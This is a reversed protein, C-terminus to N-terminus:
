QTRLFGQERMEVIVRRMVRVGDRMFAAFNCINRVYAMERNLKKMASRDNAEWSSKKGLQRDAESKGTPPQHDEHGGRSTGDFFDGGYSRGGPVPGSHSRGDSM